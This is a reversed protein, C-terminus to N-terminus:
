NPLLREYREDTLSEMFRILMDIDSSSLDGTQALAERAVTAPYDTADWPLGTEPNLPFTSQAGAGRHLHLKIVARLTSFVGNHMYPATVAVNRLGPTRFKGAHRGDDVAANGLLGPDPLEDGRATRLQRNIPVGINYYRYNSFTERSSDHVDAASHCHSCHQEFLSLGLAEETSMKSEGRLHRDYRSDFTAFRDTEEFAAIAQGIRTFPFNASRPNDFINDGFFRRYATEYDPNERIRAIVADRNPMMMEVPNLLPGGELNVQQRLHRARGDLFQGGRYDGDSMQEFDPTLAAYTLTPTNRLGLSRGDDGVSAAGNVVNDRPDIFAHEPDHCTACSQSRTLSLNRDHFLQEGLDTISAITEPPSAAGAPEADGPSCASVLMMAVAPLLQAFARM